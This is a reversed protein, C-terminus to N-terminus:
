SFISSIRWFNSFFVQASAGSGGGRFEIRFGSTSHLGSTSSFTYLSHEPGPLDTRTFSSCVSNSLYLKIMQLLLVFLSNILKCNLTQYTYQHPFWKIGSFFSYLLNNIKLFMGKFLKMITKILIKRIKTNPVNWLCSMAYHVLCKMSLFLYSMKYLVFCIKWLCIIEHVSFFKMLKEYTKKKLLLLINQSKLLHTVIISITILKIFHM